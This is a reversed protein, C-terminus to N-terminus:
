MSEDPIIEENCSECKYYDSQSLLRMVDHIRLQETLHKTLIDSLYMEGKKTTITTLPDIGEDLM